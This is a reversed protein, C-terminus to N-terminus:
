IEEEEFDYSSPLKLNDYEEKTVMQEGLIKSKICRRPMNKSKKFKNVSDSSLHENKEEKIIKELQFDFEKLSKINKIDLFLLAEKEFLESFYYKNFFHFDFFNGSEDIDMIHFKNVFKNKFKLDNNQSKKHKSKILFNKNMTQDIERLLIHMLEHGINLIIKEQIIIQSSEKKESYYDKLYNAKIYVNGTHISLAMINEPMESFFINHTYFFNKICATLKANAKNDNKFDSTFEKLAIKYKSLYVYSTFIEILEKKDLKSKGFNMELLPTATCFETKLLDLSENQDDSNDTTLATILGNELLDKLIQCKNFLNKLHSDYLDILKSKLSNLAPSELHYNAYNICKELLNLFELDTLSSNYPLVPLDFKVDSKNMDNILSLLKKSYSDQDKELTMKFGNKIVKQAKILNEKDYSKILKLNKEDFIDVCEKVTLANRNCKIKDLDKNLDIPYDLSDDEIKPYNQSFM